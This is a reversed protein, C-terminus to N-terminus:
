EQDRNNIRVTVEGRHRGREGPLCFWLGIIDSGSNLPARRIRPGQPQSNQDIRYIVLQPIDERNAIRRVNYITDNSSFEANPNDNKYQEIITAPIDALRDPRHALAGINILGDIQNGETKRTREVKKLTYGGVRWYRNSKQPDNAEAANQQCDGLGAVIVNWGGMASRELWNCFMRQNFLTEHDSFNFNELLNNKIDEPPVNDWFVSKRNWSLTPTGLTRVFNETIDVNKRQVDANADFLCIQPTTGLYNASAQVANVMHNRATLKLKLFAPAVKVRPGYEAPDIGEEAYRRLDERLSKEVENAMFNFRDRTLENMWIRPLLEYGRRYGFWRGMQMLTDCQSSDRYFYSCVLGELTLGRALTNGGIVIVAPAPTIEQDAEPYQLREYDGDNSCNDVMLYPHKRGPTFEIQNNRGLSIEDMNGDLMAQIEPEIDNFDEYDIVADKAPWCEPQNDRAKLYGYGPLQEKWKAIPLAEKERNYVERCLASFDDQDIGTIWELLKDAFVRHHEMLMSTHILMSIPSRRGRLRMCAASCYFWAVADKMSQPLSINETNVAAPVPARDNRRRRRPQIRDIIRADEGSIDRIIQLGSSEGDKWCIQEPGIYESSPRLPIIFNKPYLAENEPGENLFNAYPTATYMVYNICKAIGNSGGETYHRDQVLDVILENIGRRTNKNVTNSIGAQDAEDDIILIKMKKHADADRHIWDILQRLRTQNKLCVMLYRMNERGERFWDQARNGTEGIRDASHWTFLRVYGPVTYNLDNTMRTLTQIRLNENTGSLVIFFNWGWDAAMSMLAQMNATKGSQVYGLVLGQVPNHRREPGNIQTNSNLKQLTNVASRQLEELSDQNWHKIDTLYRLYHQWCSEKKQQVYLGNGKSSDPLEGTDISIQIQMNAAEEKETIFSRWEEVSFDPWNDDDCKNNLFDELTRGRNLFRGERIDDWSLNKMNKRKEDLWTNCKEFRELNCM